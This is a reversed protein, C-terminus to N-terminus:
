QGARELLAAKVRQSAAVVEAGADRTALRALHGVLSQVEAAEVEPLTRNATAIIAEHALISELWLLLDGPRAAAARVAVPLYDVMARTIAAHDVTYRRTDDASAAELRALVAHADERTMPSGTRTITRAERTILDHETVVYNPAQM